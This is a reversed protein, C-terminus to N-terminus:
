LLNISHSDMIARVVANVNGNDILYARNDYMESALVLMAITLDEKLDMSESSLGTYNQVFSKSAILIAELLTNDEDHYVHLYNKLEVITVESIM